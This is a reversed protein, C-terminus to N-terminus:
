QIFYSFLVLIIFPPSPGKYLKNYHNQFGFSVGFAQAKIKTTPHLFYIPGFRTNCAITKSLTLFNKKLGSKQQM